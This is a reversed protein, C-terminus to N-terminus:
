LSNGMLCPSKGYNKTHKGSPLLHFGFFVQQTAAWWGVKPSTRALQRSHFRCSLHASQHSPPKLITTEFVSFYPFGCFTPINFHPFILYSYSDYSHNPPKL